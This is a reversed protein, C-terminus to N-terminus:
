RPIKFSLRGLRIFAILTSISVSRFSASLSKSLSLFTRAIMRVPSPRPKQLPRSRFSVAAPRPIPPPRPAGPADIDASAFKRGNREMSDVQGDDASNVARGRAVAEVERESAVQPQDTIAGLQHRRKGLASDNGLAAAGPVQRAQDSPGARAFDSKDGVVDRGGARDLQSKCGPTTGCSSNIASASRQAEFIAALAGSAIREIFRSNRWPSLSSKSRVRMVDQHLQHQQKAGAIELLSKLREHLLALRIRRVSLQM